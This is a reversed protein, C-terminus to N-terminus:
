HDFMSRGTYNPSIPNTFGLPNTADTLKRDWYDNTISSKASWANESSSSVNRSIPQSGLNIFNPYFHKIGKIREAIILTVVTTLAYTILFIAANNGANKSVLIYFLITVFCSLVVTIRRVKVALGVYRDIEEFTNQQM